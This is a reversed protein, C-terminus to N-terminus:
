SLHPVLTLHPSPASSVALFRLGPSLAFTGTTIVIGPSPSFVTSTVTVRGLVSVTSGFVRSTFM